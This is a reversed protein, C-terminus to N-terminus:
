EAPPTEPETPAPPAQDLQSAVDPEELGELHAAEMAETVPRSVPIPEGNQAVDAPKFPHDFHPHDAPIGLHAEDHERWANLAYRPKAPNTEDKSGDTFHPVDFVTKLNTSEPAQLDVYALTVFGPNLGNEALVLADHPVGAPDIYVVTKGKEM